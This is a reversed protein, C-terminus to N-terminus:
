AALSSWRSADRLCGAACMDISESIFPGCVFSLRRFRGEFLLILIVLFNFGLRQAFLKYGIFLLCPLSASILSAVLTSIDNVCKM